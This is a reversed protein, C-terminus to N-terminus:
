MKGLVMQCSKDQLIKGDSSTGPRSSSSRRSQRDMVTHQTLQVISGRPSLDEKQSDTDLCSRKDPHLQQALVKCHKQQCSKGELCPKRFRVVKGLRGNNGLSAHLRVARCKQGEPNMNRRLRTLPWPPMTDRLIKKNQPHKPYPVRCQTALFSSDALTTLGKQGIKDQQIRNDLHNWDSTGMGLTPQFSSDEQCMQTTQTLKHIPNNRHQRLLLCPGM